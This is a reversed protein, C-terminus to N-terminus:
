RTDKKVAGLRAEPGQALDFACDGSFGIIKELLRTGEQKPGRREAPTDWWGVPAPTAECRCKDIM